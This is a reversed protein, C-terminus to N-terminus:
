PIPEYFRDVIAEFAIAPLGGAEPSTEHEATLEHIDETDYRLRLALGETLSGLAIALQEDTLEGRLRYGLSELVAHCGRAIESTAHRYGAEIISGIRRDDGLEPTSAVSGWVAVWIQWYPSALTGHVLGTAAHRCFRQKAESRSVPDGPSENGLTAAAEALARTVEKADYEQLVEAIVAMQYARQDQWIREYVSGATIRIGTRRELRDCIDQLRIHDLGRFGETLLVRSGEDLLLRRTEDRSRRPM